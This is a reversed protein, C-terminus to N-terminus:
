SDRRGAVVFSLDLTSLLSRCDLFGYLFLFFSCIQVANAGVTHYTLYWIPISPDLGDIIGEGSDTRDIGGVPAM